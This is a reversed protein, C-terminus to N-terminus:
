LNAELFVVGQWHHTVTCRLVARCVSKLSSFYVSFHYYLHHIHINREIKQCLFLFILLPSTPTVGQKKKAGFSLFAAAFSM